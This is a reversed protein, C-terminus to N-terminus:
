ISNLVCTVIIDGGRSPARLAILSTRQREDGLNKIRFLENFNAEFIHINLLLCFNLFYNKVSCPATILSIHKLTAEQLSILRCFLIFRAPFLRDVIKM